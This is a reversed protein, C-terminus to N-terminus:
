IVREYIYAGELSFRMIYLPIRFPLPSSEKLVIVYKPKATDLAKQTLSFSEDNNVHYAVTYKTIPRKHTLAYIQANNGWIFVKDEEITHTDIFDAVAYDRSVKPDFFNQYSSLSKTGNLFQFANQYYLVTKSLDYLPFFILVIITSLIIMGTIALKKVTSKQALLLGISLCYVPLLVLVYHTYPRGSFFASFLSFCFWISIFFAPQSFMKRKLFLIGIFIILLITKLILLGQPIGLFDNKWGVYGVNGFFSAQFFALFNGQIYFFLFTILIPILFGGIYPLTIKMSKKGNKKNIKPLSSYLLFIFFAIFDFVAVIKFLFACGLISGAVFLQKRQLKTRQTYIIYGASLLMIHMFNEANAINGEILPTAFLLTYLLSVVSAIKISHFLKISLFFVLALSLLGSILSITRIVVQDGNAIGYLLYLLPPKNDYIDQYLTQGSYLSQGIVQYIGEDGYWYPEILSPLRLFLFLLFLFFLILIKKNNIITRLM